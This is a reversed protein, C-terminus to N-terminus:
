PLTYTFVAKAERTGKPYEESPPLQRNHFKVTGTIGEYQGVGKLITGTGKFMAGGAEDRGAFQSDWKFYMWSGNQFVMKTYGWLFMSKGRYWDMFFVNSYEAKRGDSFTAKGTRKGLGAFHTEDDGAPLMTPPPGSFLITAEVSTTKAAYTPTVSSALALSVGIMAAISAMLFRMRHSAKMKRDM